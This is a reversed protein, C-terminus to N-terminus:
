FCAHGVHIYWHVLIGTCWTIKLLCKWEVDSVDLGKDGNEGPVGGVGQVGPSGAPGQPGPIGPPGQPGPPGTVM